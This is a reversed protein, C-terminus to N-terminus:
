VAHGRQWMWSWVIDKSTYWWVIGYLIVIVYAIVRRYKINTKKLLEPIAIVLFPASYMRTRAIATSNMTVVSIVAHILLLNLYFTEEETKEHDNLILIFAFFPVVATITSLVNVSNTWYSDNLNVDEGSVLGVASFLLEYSQFLLIVGALVLLLNLLRLKRHVVFYIPLLVLASRHCLFAIICVLLYPKFRRERLFPFGCCFVAVALSQRVANFCSSFMIFMFLISALLIDDTNIYVFRLELILTIAAVSLICAWGDRWILTVIKYILRIVPENFTRLAEPLENIYTVYDHYYARFDSGVYYRCGAVFILVLVILIFFFKTKNSHHIRQTTIGGEFQLDQSKALWALVVVVILTIWLTNM